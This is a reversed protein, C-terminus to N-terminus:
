TSAIPGGCARVAALGCGAWLGGAPEWWSPFFCLWVHAGFRESTQHYIVGRRTGESGEKRKEGETERRKEYCGRWGGRKGGERAIRETERM